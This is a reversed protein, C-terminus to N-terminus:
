PGSVFSTIAGCRARRRALCLRTLYPVDITEARSRSIISAIGDVLAPFRDGAQRRLTAHSQWADLWQNVPLSHSVPVESTIAPEFFGSAAIVDTQEERRSGYSFDPIYSRIFAEIEAQLPDALVRHNFISVFWGRDELVRAAERLTVLRDVVGFSSGYTCFGVSAPAQGTEEMVGDIWRVTSFRRTREIGHSRMALNPELAVVVCGREALPITLHGAGAGLDLVRMGAGLGTIEVLRDIAGDAYGPRSLYADALATYDWDLHQRTTM